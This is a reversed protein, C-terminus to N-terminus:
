LRKQYKVKVPFTRVIDYLQIEVPDKANYRSCKWWHM